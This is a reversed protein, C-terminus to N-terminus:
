RRCAEVFEVIREALLEPEEEQPLLRSHPLTTIEANRALKAFARGYRIPSPLRSKAGWAVLIPKAVRPVDASIDCNLAGGVFHAPVFRAGPQHTLTWYHDIIASTVSAANSYAQNTLFWRLSARSALGNFLAQGLLPSRVLRTIARGAAGPPRDLTGALGTPCIAVISDIQEDLRVAARIVFAGGLSAGVVCAARPGFHSVADVIQDAFLGADYTLNPKASLGNGLLDLAVVRYRRALLWFLHRFELSSSGAYIGHVLVVLPGTGAECAFLDYGRWTWRVETAGIASVAQGPKARPARSLARLAGFAGAIAAGAAVLAVVRKRM